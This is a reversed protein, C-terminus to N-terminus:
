AGGLAAALDARGSIGLKTYARALHTDVTRTSVGMRRAIEKSALGKAALLATERERPTLVDVEERRMPPTRLGGMAAALQEARQNAAAASRRRGLEGLVRGLRAASEAAMWVFGLRELEDVQRGLEEPDDDVLARAETAIPAHTETM